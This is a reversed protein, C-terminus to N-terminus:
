GERNYCSGVIILLIFLVVILVFSSGKYRSGGCCVKKGMDYAPSEQTHGCHNYAPMVQPHGYFVTPSEQDYQEWM